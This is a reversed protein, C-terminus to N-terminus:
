LYLVKGCMFRAVKSYWRRLCHSVNRPTTITLTKRRHADVLGGSNPSWFCAHTARMPQIIYTRWRVGLGSPTCLRTVNRRLDNRRHLGRRTSDLGDRITRYTWDSLCVFQKRPHAVYPVRHMEIGQCQRNVELFDGRAVSGILLTERVSWSRALHSIGTTYMQPVDPRRGLTRYLCRTM